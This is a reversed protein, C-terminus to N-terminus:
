NETYNCNGPNSTSKEVFPLRANSHVPVRHHEPRLDVYCNILKIAIIIKQRTKNKERDHGHVPSAGHWIVYLLLELSVTITAKFLCKRMIILMMFYIEYYSSM